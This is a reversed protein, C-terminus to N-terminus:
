HFVCHADLLFAGKSWLGPHLRGDAYAPVDRHRQVDEEAETGEREEASKETAAYTDMLLHYM